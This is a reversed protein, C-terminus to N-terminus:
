REEYHDMLLNVGYIDGEEDNKKMRLLMRMLGICNYMSNPQELDIQLPPLNAEALIKCEQSLHQNLMDCDSSCIPLTCM